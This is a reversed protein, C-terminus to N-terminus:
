QKVEYYGLTNNVLVKVNEEAQITELTEGNEKDRDSIQTVVPNNLQNKTIDKYEVARFPNFDKVELANIAAFDLNIENFLNEGTKFIKVCTKVASDYLNLLSELNSNCYTHKAQIDVKLMMLCYGAIDKIQEPTFLTFNESLFSIAKKKCEDDYFSFGSYQIHGNEAEYMAMIPAYTSKKEANLRGTKPNITQFVTRFGKGPKHELSFFATTRLHGYPYNNVIAKETTQFYKMKRDGKILKDINM